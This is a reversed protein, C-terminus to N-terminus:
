TCTGNVLFSEEKVSISTPNLCSNKCLIHQMSLYYGVDVWHRNLCLIDKM